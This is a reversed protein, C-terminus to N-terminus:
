NNKKPRSYISVGYTFNITYLSETNQMWHFDVDVVERDPHKAEWHNVEQFIMKMNAEPLGKQNIPIYTMSGDEYIGYSSTRDVPVESTKHIPEPACALGLLVVMALVFLTPFRM